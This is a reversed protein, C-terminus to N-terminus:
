LMQDERLFYKNAYRIVQPDTPHDVTEVAVINEATRPAHKSAYKLFEIKASSPGIILIQNVIAVSEIVDKFFKTDLPTNGSGIENAKHHLHPHPSNSRIIENKSKDFFFVHAEKHDIWIVAHNRPM